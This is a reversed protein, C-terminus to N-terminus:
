KRRLVAKKVAKWIVGDYRGIPIGWPAWTPPTLGVIVDIAAVVGAGIAPWILWEM